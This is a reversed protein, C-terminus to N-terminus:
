CKTIYEEEIYNRLQNLDNIVIEVNPLNKFIDPDGSKIRGIFRTNTNRAAKWDNIADGVFIVQNSPYNTINLIDKICDSKVKPAGYIKIFYKQIARENIIKILEDEPTASIIYLPLKHYNKELFNMTGEVFKSKIVGEYVLESFSQCLYTFQEETLTENLINSYIYRFKDYRSMGGNNVHFEVIQDVFKPIHSFLKRFAETKVSVSELIVGDFDLIIAKIM